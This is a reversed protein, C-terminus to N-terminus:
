RLIWENSAQYGSWWWKDDHAAETAQEKERERQLGPLYTRQSVSM